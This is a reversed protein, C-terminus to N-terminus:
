AEDVVEDIWDFYKKSGGDMLVMVIEPTDYGHLDQIVKQIQGFLRKKTKLRLLIEDSHVIDGQWRYHSKLPMEQICAVLQRGLLEDILSKAKEQNQCTTEVICYM